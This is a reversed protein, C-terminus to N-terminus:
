VSDKSDTKTSCFSLLIFTVINCCKSMVSYMSAVRDKVMEDDVTTAYAM